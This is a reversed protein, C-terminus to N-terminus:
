HRQVWRERFRITPLEGSSGLAAVTEEVFEVGEIPHLTFDPYGPCRCAVPAEAFLFVLGVGAIEHIWERVVLNVATTM